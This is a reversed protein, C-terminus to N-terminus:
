IVQHDHKKEGKTKILTIFEMLLKELELRNKCELFLELKSLHEKQTKVQIIETTRQSYLTIM